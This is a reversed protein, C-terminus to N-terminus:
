RKVGTPREEEEQIHAGWNLEGAVHMAFAPLGMCYVYYKWFGQCGCVNQM